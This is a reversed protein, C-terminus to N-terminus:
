HRVTTEDPPKAPPKVEPRDIRGSDNRSTSTAPSAATSTEPPTVDKAPATDIPELEVTVRTSAPEIVRVLARDSLVGVSVNFTRPRAALVVRETSVEAFDRIVSAPGSVLANPPDLTINAVRVDPPADGVIFPRIAVIKQRKPELKFTIKPPNISVVEVGGPPLNLAEPRIIATVDGARADTLDVAAELTQSSVANLLSQRGRLRVRVSDHDNATLILHQPVAGFVIPVDYPRELVRESRASSVAVWFGTAVVLALVKLWFHEFLWKM